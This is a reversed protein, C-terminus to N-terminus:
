FLEYVKDKTVDSLSRDENDDTVKTEEITVSGSEQLDKFSEESAYVIQLAVTSMSILVILAIIITNCTSKCIMIGLGGRKSNEISDDLSCKQIDM